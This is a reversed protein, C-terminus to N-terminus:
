STRWRYRQDRPADADFYVQLVGAHEQIHDLLQRQTGTRWRPAPEDVHSWRHRERQRFEVYADRLRDFGPKVCDWHGYNSALTSPVPMGLADIVRVAACRGVYGALQQRCGPCTGARMPGQGSEPPEYLELTRGSEIRIQNENLVSTM